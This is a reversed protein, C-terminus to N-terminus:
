FISQVSLKEGDRVGTLFGHADDLVDKYDESQTKAAYVINNIHMEIKDVDEHKLLIALLKKNKEWEGFLNQARSLEFENENEMKEIETISATLTRDTYVASCIALALCFFPLIVATVLRKM